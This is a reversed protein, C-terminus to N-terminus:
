KIIEMWELCTDPLLWMSLLHCCFKVEGWGSMEKSKGLLYWQFSEVSLCLCCGRVLHETVRLNCRGKHCWVGLDIELLGLHMLGAHSPLLLESQTKCQHSKAHFTTFSLSHHYGKFMLNYKWACSGTSTKAGHSLTQMFWLDPCCSKYLFAFCVTSSVWHFSFQPYFSASLPIVVGFAGTFLFYEIKWTWLPDSWLFPFLSFSNFSDSQM